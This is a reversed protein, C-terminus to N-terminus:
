LGMIQAQRDFDPVTSRVHEFSGTARISGNELYVVRDVMRVSSLRHAIMIVTVEGKLNDIAGALDSETQGDLSSTAEDLVLLRPHTYMARAIGLRQRQGGSLSAGREGVVSDLGDPLQEVFQNLQALRLAQWVREDQSNETPYGLCVNERITGNIILVDQPVYSIAGPWKIVAAEPNVNSIKVGGSQPILLGLILDVLTTKGSGSPGVIAVSEGAAFKLDLNQIAFSSDGSYSFNVKELLVGPSFDFYDSELNDIKETDDFKVKLNEFLELTAGAVGLNSRIQLASQQIRLAAPAIRTSAALFVSLVAVARTADQLIFQTVGVCLAGLVLTVEVVYKSVNPMFTIEAITDALALRQKGIEATYFGRRNRVVTERFSSLVELIKENSLITLKANLEGLSRAKKHLARYVAIPVLSFIVTAFIATLPDVIFLGVVLLTLLSADAIVHITPGIIGLTISSVGLTASHLREQNTKKQLELLNLRLVRSVISSSIFASRRSLFFIARRTFLVSLATKLILLTAAMSGVVAVQSQLNLANLNLVSLISSVRSGPTQGQIGAVSIAGVIGNLAVAALDLFAFIVQFFVIIGLKRKDEKELIRAARWVTLGALTRRWKVRM